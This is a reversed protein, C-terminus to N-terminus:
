EVESGPLMTSLEQLRKTAIRLFDVNLKALEKLLRQLAEADAVELARDLEGDGKESRMEYWRNFIDNIRDAEHGSFQDCVLQMDMLGRSRSEMEIRQMTDRLEGISDEDLHKGAFREILEWRFRYAMRLVTALAQIPRGFDASISQGVEEVFNIQFVKEPDKRYEDYDMAHLIPRYEKGGHAEKFTAQIPRFANNAAAIKIVALIEQLWRSEPDKERVNETLEGWTYPEIGKGFMLASIEDTSIKLNDMDEVTNLKLTDPVTIRVFRQYYRRKLKTRQRLAKVIKGVLPEMLIKAAPNLAKMGPMLNDSCFVNILFQRVSSENGWVAEFEDIPAPSMASGEHHICILKNVTKPAIMNGRFVGTEYLCWSKDAESEPPLLMFWHASKIADHIKNKYDAGVITEGFEASYTINLKENSLGRLTEVIDIAADIDEHKFSFFVNIKDSIIAQAASKLAAAHNQEKAERIIRDAEQLAKEHFPNHKILYDLTEESVHTEERFHQFNESDTSRRHKRSDPPM